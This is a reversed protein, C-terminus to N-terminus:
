SKKSDVDKMRNYLVFYSNLFQSLEEKYNNLGVGSSHFDNACFSHPSISLEKKKILNKYQLLANNSRINFYYCIERSIVSQGRIYMLWPVLFSAMNLDNHSRFKNVLFSNIEKEYKLWAYEYMSKKLPIYTHVLPHDINIDDYRQLLKNSTISASLTVTKIGNALLKKLSKKAVFLSALGNDKFFHSKPLPRAVFVDDNFYIFDESLGPIKHLHAEIVHSNFTPLYSKNIIQAHSVFIIKESVIDWSPRQGDTM